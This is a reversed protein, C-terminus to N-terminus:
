RTLWAVHPNRNRAAERVDKSPAPPNDRRDMHRRHEKLKTECSDCLVLTRGNSLAVHKPDYAQEKCADCTEKRQGSRTPEFASRDRREGDIVVRRHSPSNNTTM